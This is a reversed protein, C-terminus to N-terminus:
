GLGFLSLLANSVSANGLCSIIWWIWHWGINRFVVGSWSSPLYGMSPVCWSEFWVLPLHFDMICPPKFLNSRSFWTYMTMHSPQLTIWINKKETECRVELLRFRWALRGTWQQSIQESTESAVSLNKAILIMWYWDAYIYRYNYNQTEFTDIRYRCFGTSRHTKAGVGTKRALSTNSKIRSPDKVTIISSLM